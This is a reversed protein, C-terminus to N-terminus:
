HSTQFVLFLGVVYTVIMLGPGPEVFWFTREARHLVDLLALGVLLMGFLAGIVIATDIRGLISGPGDALDLVVLIFMNFCNSGLLNGVALDYSGSRVSAISVVAEPLSTIVALLALGLFGTSIGLQDALDAASTALFQATVFIVVAAVAFGILARGLGPAHHAAEEVQEITEFPPIARNAYLVRTGAVYGVLIALTAWSLGLPTVTDGVLIGIAALATLCIALTGIIAQNFAVRTLIRGQRVSLDALALILMNFMNSGFVDGAALNVNGLLVSYSNTTLEPLSTAGAVLIAGVWAQGLGTRDAIADGDRALRVGAIVVVTASLLFVLWPPM